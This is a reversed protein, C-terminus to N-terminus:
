LTFQLLPGAEDAGGIRRAKVRFVRELVPLPIEESREGNWAVRGGHLLVVHDAYRLAVNLDHLIAVVTCRGELLGRAVDLLHLQYHVDLSSTPEDLFLFRSQGADAGADDTWIQALVRALQVKQQEGGSLTSYPQGARDSMGVLALAADVIERDRPTPVRRFHPYRGMMAVDGVPLPFALEVHQSLVARIRALRPPDFAVLPEGDYTVSGGAPHVLGTAVRLLTSKGAGNPGLVVNFQGPRFHVSVDDLIRTGGAVYSVGRLQVGAAGDRRGM